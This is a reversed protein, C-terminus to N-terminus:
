GLIVLSGALHALLPAVHNSGIKGIRGIFKMCKFFYNDPVLMRKWYDKEGHKNVTSLCGNMALALELM